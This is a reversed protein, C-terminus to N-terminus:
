AQGDPLDGYWYHKFGEADAKDWGNALDFIIDMLKSRDACLREADAKTLHSAMECSCGIGERILDVCGDSHQGFEFMFGLREEIYKMRMTNERTCDPLEEWVTYGRGHGYRISAGTM